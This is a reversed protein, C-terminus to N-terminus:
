HEFMTKFADSEWPEFYLILEIRYWIFWNYSGNLLYSVIMSKLGYSITEVFVLTNLDFTIVKSVNQFCYGTKLNILFSWIHTKKMVSQWPHVKIRNFFSMKCHSLVRYHVNRWSFEIANTAHINNTKMNRNCTCELMPDNPNHLKM